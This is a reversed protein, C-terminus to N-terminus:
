INPPYSLSAVTVGWITVRVVFGTEHQSVALGQAQQGRPVTVAPM